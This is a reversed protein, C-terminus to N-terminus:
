PTLRQIMQAVKRRVEAPVGIRKYKEKESLPVTADFGLKTMFGGKLNSPDISRARMHPIVVMDRDAQFRTAIAWEVDGADQVNVDEDVVLAHKVYPVGALLFHLLQHPDADHIKRLCVVVHTRNSAHTVVLQKVDFGKERLMRIMEAEGAPGGLFLVERAMPHLAQFIPSRRHTVATAEIVHSEDSFYYGSTEGFPGEPERVGPLVKGEITIEADAPVQLDVTKCRVMNIPGALLSSALAVKDERPSSVISAILMVPHVGISLAVELPVGQKEAEAAFAAIPPNTLHVGMKRKGKIHIRHLGM